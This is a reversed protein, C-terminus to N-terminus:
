LSRDWLGYIWPKVLIHGLWALATGLSAGFLVQNWASGGLYVGSTILLFLVILAMATVAMKIIYATCFVSM